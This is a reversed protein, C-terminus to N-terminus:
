IRKLDSKFHYAGFKQTYLKVKNKKSARGFYGRQLYIKKHIDLLKYYVDINQINSM